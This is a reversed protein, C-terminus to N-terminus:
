QKVAYVQIVAGPGNHYQGEYIDREKELAIKFDHGFLEKKITTLDLMHEETRPGGTKLKLQASSYSGLVFVGGRRM